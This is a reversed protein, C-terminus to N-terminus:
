LLAAVVCLLVSHFPVGFFELVTLFFIRPVAVGAVVGQQTSTFPPSGLWVSVSDGVTNQGVSDKVPSM